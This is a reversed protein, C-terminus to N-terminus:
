VKAKTKTKTTKAKTKAQAPAKVTTTKPVAIGLLGAIHDAVEAAVKALGEDARVQYTARIRGVSHSQLVDIVEGDHGMDVAVSAWTRRLDHISVGLDEVKLGDAKPGLGADDRLREWSHWLARRRIPVEIKALMAAAVPPVYVRVTGKLGPQGKAFRLLGGGLARTEETLALLVGLRCGTLLIFMAARNLSTPAKKYAKGLAQLEAESLRRERAEEANRKWGRTPNPMGAMVGTEDRAESWSWMIGLLSKVRNALVATSGKGDLFAFTTPRTLETIRLHGLAPLVHRDLAWRQWRQTQPRNKVLVHGQYWAEAVERVTPTTDEPLAPPAGDIFALQAQLGAKEGQTEQLVQLLELQRTLRQITAAQEAATALLDEHRSRPTQIRQGGQVKDRLGPMMRRVEALSLAPWRGITHNVQKGDVRYRYVWSIIKSGPKGGIQVVLGPEGYVPIRQLKGMVADLQKLVKETIIV